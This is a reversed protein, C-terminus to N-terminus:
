VALDDGNEFLCLAAAWNRFEAPFVADAGGREVFPAALKAAHVGGQHGPMIGM